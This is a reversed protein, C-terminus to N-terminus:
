YLASKLTYFDPQTWDTNSPPAVQTVLTPSRARAAVPRVIHYNAQGMLTSVVVGHFSHPLGPNVPTALPPSGVQMRYVPTQVGSAPLSTSAHRPGGTCTPTNIKDIPLMSLDQAASSGGNQPPLSSSRSRGMLLFDGAPPIVMPTWRGRGHYGRVMAIRGHEGQKRSQDPPPRVQQFAPVRVGQKVAPFESVQPKVIRDTSLSGHSLSSSLIHDQSLNSSLIHDNSPMSSIIVDHSPSSSIQSPSSSIIRDNSPSSSIVHSHGSGEGPIIESWDSFSLPVRAPRGSAVAAVAAAGANPSNHSLSWQSPLSSQEVNHEHQQLPLSDALVQVNPSDSGRSPQSDEGNRMEESVEQVAPLAGSSSSSLLGVSRESRSSGMIPLSRDSHLSGASGHHRDAHLSGASRHHRDPTMPPSNRHIHGASQEHLVRLLAPDSNSHGVLIQGSRLSSSQSRSGLSRHSSSHSQCGLGLDSKCLPCFTAKIFWLDVCKAHFVHSCDLVRCIDLLAANFAEHCIACTDHKYTQRMEETWVMLESQQVFAEPILGRPM